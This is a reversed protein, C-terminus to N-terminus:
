TTEITILTSFLGPAESQFILSDGLFHANQYVGGAANTPRYRTPNIQPELQPGFVAVTQGPPVIISASFAMQADPLQLSDAVRVWKSTATFTQSISSVALRGLRLASPTPASVYLSFCYQYSAPASFVQVIQQDVQASNVLLFAGNGGQPDPAGATLALLPDLQWSSARLDASNSLMNATPDIFIFPQFPGQCASFHSKLASQDRATLEAYALEWVSQSNASINSAIMTGDSFANLPSQIVRRKRLPYQVMAGSSLQPFALNAM